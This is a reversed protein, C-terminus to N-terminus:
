ETRRRDIQEWVEERQSKRDGCGVKQERKKQEDGIEVRLGMASLKILKIDEKM